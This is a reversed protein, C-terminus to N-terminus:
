IKGTKSKDRLRVANIKVPKKPKVQASLVESQKILDSRLIFAYSKLQEVFPTLFVLVFFFSVITGPLLFLELVFELLIIFFLLISGLLIISCSTVFNNKWFVISEKFAGLFFEEDLVMSQPVFMLLVSILLAILASLFIINFYIGILLLAYIIVSLFVYFLFINISVKKLLFDWYVDFSVKQVDRKTSYVTLSVFFSFFYLFVLGLLLGLITIISEHYILHVTGSSLFFQDFFLFLIVFIFLVGYSLMVKLNDMYEEISKSLILGIM